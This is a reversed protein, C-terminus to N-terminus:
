AGAIRGAADEIKASGGAAGAIGNKLLSRGFGSPTMTFAQVNALKPNAGTASRIGIRVPYKNIYHSLIAAFFLVVSVSTSTNSKMFENTSLSCFFCSLKRRMSSIFFHDPKSGFIHPGEMM